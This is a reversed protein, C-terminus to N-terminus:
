VQWLVSKQHVLFLLLEKGNGYGFGSQKAPEWTSGAAIGIAANIKLIGVDLRDMAQTAHRSSNTFVVAGLGYRSDNAMAIAEDFSDFPRLAAVAKSASAVADEVVEGTALPMRWVPTEDAANLLLREGAGASALDHGDIFHHLWPVDGM